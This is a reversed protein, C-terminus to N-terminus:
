DQLEQRMKLLRERIADSEDAAPPEAVPQAAVPQAAAPQSLEPYSVPTRELLEGTSNKQLLTFSMGNIEGGLRNEFRLALYRRGDKRLFSYQSVCVFDDIQTHRYVGKSIIDYEAAM